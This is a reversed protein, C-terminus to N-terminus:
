YVNGKKVKSSFETTGGEALVKAQAVWEDRSVRGKFGELNQDVWAIEDAGWNAIQDFHYFGMGNLLAELKPGIGKIQKLNDASGDRAAALAAPKSGAGADAPAADAVPAAKPKAKAKPTAAPKAMAAPKPKEEAAPKVAAPAAPAAVAPKAPAADAGASRTDAEAKPPTAAASKQPSSVAGAAPLPKCMIWNLLVGALGAIVLGAFLGSWFSWGGLVMLLIAVLVGALIAVLWCGKTCSIKGQNNDM